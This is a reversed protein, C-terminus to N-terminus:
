RAVEALRTPECELDLEVEPEVSGGGLATVEGRFAELQVRLQGAEAAGAHVLRVRRRDVRPKLEAERQHYLRGELWKPGERSWCDRSPCAAVLVGAAGARLLYEVVSTHLNGACEARLLPAGDFSATASFGGAERTGRGPVVGLNGAVSSLRGDGSGVAGRACGVIVVDRPSLPRRELFARVAALQDRGSRGPPGAGMPACSGACIGCSVCLGPDVVALLEARGDRRPVMAIAEYPCDLYCQECGTCLRPDIESPAPRSEARPRSWWPVLVAIAAVAGGGVWVAGAPLARTVPLWFAYFADLPGRGPIRLLDAPPGLPAPWAIALVLLAAVLAGALRRPPLLVPRAVRSVHVWLLVGMGVPLAIHLFLNLFFFAAPLPKEGVFARGIPESFLPLVDLFRAGEAALLQGQVDWVMVYGTWGCVFLVFLLVLGSVWALVRPGWTRGQAFLRFAHLGVAVVAADAAYRHATRIPGGLWPDAAMRAVSGHPDGIRYFLLLYLGTVLLAILLLATVAGSHYLPNFRSGYLRNFLGDLRGLAELALRRARGTRAASPRRGAAETRRATPTAKM